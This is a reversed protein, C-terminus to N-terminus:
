PRAGDRNVQVAIRGENELAITLEDSTLGLIDGAARVVEHGNDELADAVASGITGSAGIVVVKM